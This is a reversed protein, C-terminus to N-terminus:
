GGVVGISSYKYWGGFGVFCGIIGDGFLYLGFYCMLGLYGYILNEWVDVGVLVGILMEEVGVFGLVGFFFGVLLLLVM